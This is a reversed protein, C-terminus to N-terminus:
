ISFKYSEISIIEGGSGVGDDDIIHNSEKNNNKTKIVDNNDENDPNNINYLPINELCTARIIIEDITDVELGCCSLIIYENYVCGFFDTALCIVESIIFYFIDGNFDKKVIFYYINMFPNMFFHALSRAMPSYKVNCYIKYANVVISLIFYLLILFSLLIKDGKTIDENDYLKILEDFPKKGISFLIAMVVEFAGECALIKFPNMFNVDALYKEICNAFSFGTMYYCVIFYALLLSGISLVHIKYIIDLLFTFFLCISIIILSAKHHKQIKFRLAYTCILASTITQISSIREEISPSYNKSDYKGSYHRLISEFIDLFAAVFILFIIKTNGDGVIKRKQNIFDNGLYNVEEKKKMSRYQYIYIFLGGFTEALTMLFVKILTLSANYKLEFVINLSNRIFYSLLFILLYILNKRFKFKIM